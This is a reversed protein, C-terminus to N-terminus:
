SLDGDREEVSVNEPCEGEMERRCGRVHIMKGNVLADAIKRRADHLDRWLTKRSIGMEAAASEQDYGGLDM